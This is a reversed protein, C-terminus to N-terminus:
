EIAASGLGGAAGHVLLTERSTAQARTVLGFHAAVYNVLMSSAEAASIGEPVAFVSDAPVSIHEQWSGDPTLAIVRQGTEVGSGPPAERVIGVAEVGPVFPYQRVHQYRGEITLVDPYTVGAVEVDISVGHEVPVLQHDDVAELSLGTESESVVVAKM